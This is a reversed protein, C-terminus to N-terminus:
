AVHEGSPSVAAKEYDTFPRRHSFALDLPFPQAPRVPAKEARDDDRPTASRPTRVEGAIVLCALAAIFVETRHGV